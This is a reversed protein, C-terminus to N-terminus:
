SLKLHTQTFDTVKRHSALLYHMLLTVVFAAALITLSDDCAICFHRSLQTGNKIVSAHKQYCDTHILSKKM